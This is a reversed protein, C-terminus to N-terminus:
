RASSTDSSALSHATHDISGLRPVSRQCWQDNHAAMINCAFSATEVAIERSSTPKMHATALSACAKGQDSAAAIYVERM